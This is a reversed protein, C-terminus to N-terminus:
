CSAVARVRERLSRATDLERGSLWPSELLRSEAEAAALAGVSEVVDDAPVWLSAGGRVAALVNQLQLEFCDHFTRGAPAPSGPIRRDFEPAAIGDSARLVDAEAVDRCAIVGSPRDVVLGRRLDYERSLRVEGSSGDPWELELLCNTATGGMADDSCALEHPVGLWWILLDLVHSGVDWLLRNGTEPAFYAPSDVPWRFPSGEHWLIRTPREESLLQRLLCASRSFRRVMGVACMLGRERALDALTEAAARDLTFPKECLVHKGHELLAQVQEAHAAPPSAVIALEGPGELVAEWSPAVTAASLLAALETAAASSVDFLHVPGVWSGARLRALAPAYYSRAVAGCGVLVVSVPPAWPAGSRALSRAAARAIGAATRPSKELRWVVRLQARAAAADGQSQLRRARKLGSTAYRSSATRKVASREAPEFYESFLEIALRTYDLDRGDRLNRGTNSDGRLRYCALPREEYYVPFRAAVRVWMEWDEACALRDDFGGLQEYVSRRVVICPTMIRQEAALFRAGEALIGSSAPERPGLDLRGGREDVYVHRCYAAGADAHERLRAGLTQYFGELVFDDGHLLHVLEGRSRQLCANLNGVVGLNEPQRHFDVRGGGVRAVVGEPDDLPSHDDVVEIQMAEPGPDQALVSRLTAELYRACNYTPIM